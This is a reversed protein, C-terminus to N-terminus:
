IMSRILELMKPYCEEMSLLLKLQAKTRQLNHEPHKIKYYADGDLYDTLFRVTQMYTLLKAGFPLLEVELPTLFSKATELYGKAYAEFIDMLFFVNDTNEDDEKGHNAGTRMFDGFDSVVFGPMVTDLDVVCLVEDTALDFLINNVKTDCHNIRKPLKGDRHLQEVRCMDDARKEIEAVISEVKPLRGSLNSKVAQRFTALRAEINHFNPITEALPPAPLDALMAQFQGFARGALFSLKPSVEDVSKSGAIYPMVRWYCGDPSRHYLAGQATPVLALVKRAIDPEGQAALKQRIHDTVRKINNQLADVDKFIHHNIRQLVYDPAGGQTRVMYSDNIHGAGLPKVEEVKGEVAFKGVIDELNLM